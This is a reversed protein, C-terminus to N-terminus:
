IDAHAWADQQVVLMASLFAPNDPTLVHLADLYAKGIPAGSALKEHLRGCFARADKSKVEWRFGVTAPVGEQAVRFLSQSSAGECSSLVLLNVRGRRLIQAFREMSLGTLELPEQGPLVLFVDDDDARVSHGCFHVIDWPGDGVAAELRAISDEGTKLVCQAPEELDRALRATSIDSREADLDPLRRFSQAEQRRFTHRGVSLTGRGPNSVIVLTRGTLAKKAALVSTADDEAVTAQSPRLLIRRALPSMDRVFKRRVCDRLAEFPVDPFEVSDTVIRFHMNDMSKVCQLCTDIATRQPESLLFQHLQEGVSLLRHPWGDNVRAEGEPDDYKYLEWRPGFEQQEARLFSLMDSAVPEDALVAGNALMVRVRISEVHIFIDVQAWPQPDPIVKRMKRLAERIGDISENGFVEVDDVGAAYRQLLDLRVPAAFLIPLSRRKARLAIALECAGFGLAALEHTTSTGAHFGYIIAASPPSDAKTELAAFVETADRCLTLRPAAEGDKTAELLLQIATLWEPDSAAVLLHDPM